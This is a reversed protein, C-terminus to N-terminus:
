IGLVIKAIKQLELVRTKSIGSKRSIEEADDLLQKIAVIGVNALKCAEEKEIGRLFTIPYLKFEEILRELGREPPFKWAIFELGKCL